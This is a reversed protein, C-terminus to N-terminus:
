CSSSAAILTAAAPSRRRRRRAVHVAGTVVLVLSGFRAPVGIGLRTPPVRVVLGSVAAGQRRGAPSCAREATNSGPRPSPGRRRCSTCPRRRPERCRQRPTGPRGRPRGPCPRRECRVVSAPTPVCVSWLFCTRRAIRLGTWATSRRRRPRRYHAPGARRGSPPQAASRGATARGASWLRPGRERPGGGSGPQPRPVRGPIRADPYEHVQPAYRERVESLASAPTPRHGM